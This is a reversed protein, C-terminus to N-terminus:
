NSKRDFNELSTVTLVLFQFSVAFPRPKCHFSSIRSAAGDAHELCELAEVVFNMHPGLRRLLLQRLDGDIGQLSIEARMRQRGLTDRLYVPHNGAGTPLIM